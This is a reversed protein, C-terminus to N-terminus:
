FVDDDEDEDDDEDGFAAFLSHHFDMDFALVHSLTCSMPAFNRCCVAFIFWSMPREDFNLRRLESACLCAFSRSALSSSVERHNGRARRESAEKLWVGSPATARKMAM